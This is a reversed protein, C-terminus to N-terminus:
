GDGSRKIADIKACLRAADFENMNARLKAKFDPKHLDQVDRVGLKLLVPAHDLLGLKAFRDFQALPYSLPPFPKSATHTRAHTHPTTPEYKRM